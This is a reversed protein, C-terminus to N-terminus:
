STLGELTSPCVWPQNTAMNKDRDKWRSPSAKYQKLYQKGLSNAVKVTLLLRPLFFHDIAASVITKTPLSLSVSQQAWSWGELAKDSFMRGHQQQLRRFNSGPRVLDALIMKECDTSLPRCVGDDEQRATRSTKRVRGSQATVESSRMLISALLNFVAFWCTLSRKIWGRVCVCVCPLTDRKIQANWDPNKM